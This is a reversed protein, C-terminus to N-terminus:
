CFHIFNWELVYKPNKKESHKRFNEDLFIMKKKADWSSHRLCKSKKERARQELLTKNGTGHSSPCLGHIIISIVCFVRYGEMNLWNMLHKGVLNQKSHCCSVCFADSKKAQPDASMSGTWKEKLFEFLTARSDTTMEKLSRGRYTEAVHDGGPYVGLAIIEAM